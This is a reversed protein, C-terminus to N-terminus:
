WLLFDRLMEELDEIKDIEVQPTAPPRLALTKSELDHLEKFSTQILAKRLVQSGQTKTSQLDSKLDARAVGFDGGLSGGVTSNLSIAESETVETIIAGKRSALLSYVSVDDLYVFERLSGDCLARRRRSARQKRWDRFRSTISM